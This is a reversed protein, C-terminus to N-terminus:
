AKLIKKYYDLVASSCAEQTYLTNVTQSAREIYSSWKQRDTTSVEDILATLETSTNFRLGIEGGTVAVGNDYQEKTGSIDRGITLCRMFMAEPLIRGFGENYSPVITARADAMLQPVDNRAGLFVVRDAIGYQRVKEKLMELYSEKLPAGAIWLPLAKKSCAYADILEEVGKIYELRGAFFLYDLTDTKLVDPTSICDYIVESKDALRHHEQVGKTICIAHSVTKYFSKKCPYYRMGIQKTNERFHYVHPIRSLRAARAGIDIVSSNSHVIDFGQLRQALQRTARANVWRRALLRPVWLLYDKLGEDYPYVNLRYKLVLVPIGRSELDKAAGRDNTEDPVVVLPEVGKEMLAYLMPLFSKYAGGFRDSDHLIYAVKLAM